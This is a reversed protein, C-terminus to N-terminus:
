RVVTFNLSKPASRMAAPNTATVVLKHRGPALTKAASIRGQFAVTNTGSRGALTLKGGTLTGKCSPERRNRRTQAVCKGGVKRGSVLRAFSFTVTAGENLSFSFTTGTPIRRSIRALRNGQRKASLARRELLREAQDLSSTAFVMSSLRATSADDEIVLGVNSGRLRGDEARRGLLTEYAGVAGARFSARLILHDLADIM